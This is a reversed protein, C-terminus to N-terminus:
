SPRNHAYVFAKARPEVVHIAELTIATRHHTLRVRRKPQCKMSSVSIKRHRRLM